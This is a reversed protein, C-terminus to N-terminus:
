EKTNFSYICGSNDSESHSSEFQYGSAEDSEPTPKDKRIDSDSCEPKLKKHRWKTERCVVQGANGGINTCIPCFCVVNKRKM